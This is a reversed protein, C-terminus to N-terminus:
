VLELAQMAVAFGAILFLGAGTYRIARVPAKENLADGLRAAPIAALLSGVTAGAAALPASDFRGALAFTLFQSRDGVEAALFLITAAVFLPVPSESIPDPRRRVLGAVGAFLLSLAVLLTMARITVLGAVLVGAIAALCNSVLLALFLAALIQRWQGYRAALAAVLLQTKDGFEALAGAVFATVLAEM